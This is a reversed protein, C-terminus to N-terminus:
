KMILIQTLLFSFYCVCLFFIIEVSPNAQDTGRLSEHPVKLFRRRNEAATAAMDGNKITGSWM